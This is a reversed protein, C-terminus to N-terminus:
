GAADHRRVYDGPTVIAIGRFPHLVLLDADSAVIVSAKAALALELVKNDKADRCLGERRHDAGDLARRRRDAGPM